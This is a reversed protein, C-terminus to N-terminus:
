SEEVVELNILSFSVHDAEDGQQVSESKIKRPRSSKLAESLKRAKLEQEVVEERGCVKEIQLVVRNQLLDKCILM